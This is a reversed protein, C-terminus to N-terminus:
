CLRRPLTIRRTSGVLRCPVDNAGFHLLKADHNSYFKEAFGRICVVRTKSLLGFMSGELPNKLGHISGVESLMPFGPRFGFLSHRVPPSYVRIFQTASIEPYIM